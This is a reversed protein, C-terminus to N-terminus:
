YDFDNRPDSSSRKKNPDEIYEIVLKSFDISEVFNDSSFSTIRFNEYEREQKGLWIPCPIDLEKCVEDLATRVSKNDCEATIQRDIKQKKMVKVWLQPM